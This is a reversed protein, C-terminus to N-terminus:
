GSKETKQTTWGEVQQLITNRPYFNFGSYFALARTYGAAAMLTKKVVLHSEMWGLASQMLFSGAGRGRLEPELYFSEIKGTKEESISSLCYGMLRDAGNIRVLDIKLSGKLALERVSHMREIFDRREFYKKFLPTVEGDYRTLKEWLPCLIDLGTPDGPFVTLDAPCSLERSNCAETQELTLALPYFGYQQYFGFVEENGEGVSIIKRKVAGADLWHIANQMFIAGIGLRRYDKEIYISDIEGCQQANISSVCYGIFTEASFALEIHLPYRTAKQLLEKKRNAFRAGAFQAKFRQARDRHHAILKLWLPELCDIESQPIIKLSISM